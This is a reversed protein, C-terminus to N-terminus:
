PLGTPVGSRIRLARVGLVAVIGVAVHCLALATASATDLDAALPMAPISGVALVLAVAIATADVWRWRRPLLAVIILGSALPLSSFGALTALDVHAPGDASTFDYSGGAVAGIVYLATNVLVAVAVSVVLVGPRSLRDLRWRPRM